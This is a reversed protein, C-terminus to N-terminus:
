QHMLQFAHQCAARQLKIPWHPCNALPLAQGTTLSSAAETGYKKRRKHISM